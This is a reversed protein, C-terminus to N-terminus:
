ASRWEAPLFMAWEEGNAMHVDWRPDQRIARDSAAKVAAYYEEYYRTPQGSLALHGMTRRPRRRQNAHRMKTLSM